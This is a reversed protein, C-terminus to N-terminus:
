KARELKWSVDNECVTYGNQEAEAYIRASSLGPQAFANDKPIYVYDPYKDANIEYYLALRSLTIEDQGSLWASFSASEYGRPLLLTCWTEQAYIFLKGPTQTEYSRMDDYIRMYDNALRESTVIGRAAGASIKSDLAAPPADWFCHVAKVTIMLAFLCTLPVLGAARLIRRQPKNLASLESILMGIFICSAVSSICLAMSLVDFGMNSTACVCLSYAIGLAYFAAFLGRPKNELLLYATFGVFCLPFMIGNYYSQTLEKAFLIFSLLACFSALLLHIHTHERWKKDLALWALSAAYLGLPLLMLKHATLLCYVYHKIMFSVTYSPHEPDSLVGPLSAILEEVSCHTFFFVAFFVSVIAVGCTILGFFRFSFVENDWLAGHAKKRIASYLVTLLLYLVYVAALYPCCVVACAFFAGAIIIDARKEKQATGAFAGALVLTDLAVTNYSYCMMDFPTFLLFLMSAAVAFAGYKKLRLYLILAFLSHLAIYAYRAALLLGETSGIVRTYLAVFPLTFFSALQSMHWEDFFLRDGLTLRYPVTLYFAEDSGGFGYPAKWLMFLVGAVFLVAFALSQRSINLKNQKNNM